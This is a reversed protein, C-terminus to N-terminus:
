EGQGVNNLLEQMNPDKEAETMLATVGQSTGLLKGMMEQLARDAEPNDTL